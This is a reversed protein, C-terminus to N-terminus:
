KSPQCFFNKCTTGKKCRPPCSQQKVEEEMPPPPPRLPAKNVPSVPSRRTTQKIQCFGNKCTGKKCRPPCSQQKGEEEMPTPPPPAKVHPAKVHPAKVHPSVPSRRTTQKIQCFGNKCTGKKCRPPCSQQKVEEEMPQLPAKLTEEPTKSESSIDQFYSELKHHMMSGIEADVLKQIKSVINRLTEDKTYLTNEGFDIEVIRKIYKSVKENIIQAYGRIVERLYDGRNENSSLIYRLLENSTKRPNKLCMEAFFMSWAECYGGSEDDKYKLLNSAAEFGQLGTKSPCVDSSQIISVPPRGDKAVFLNIQEMFITIHQRINVSHEGANFDDGHPEFHEFHNFERRYILCNAHGSISKSGDDNVFDISVPIIFIPADRIICIAAARATSITIYAINKTPKFNKNLNIKLSERLPFCRTKYKTLLYMWFIKNIYCIATYKVIKKAGAEQLKDLKAKLKYPVPMLIKDPHQLKIIEILEDIVRYLFTDIEMDDSVVNSVSTDGSSATIAKSLKNYNISVPIENLVCQLNVREKDIIASKVFYTHKQEILRQLTYLDAFMFRSVILIDKVINATDRVVSGELVREIGSIIINRPPILKYRFGHLYRSCRIINQDEIIRFGHTPYQKNVIEIANILSKM